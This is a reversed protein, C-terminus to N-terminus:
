NGLSLQASYTSGGVTAKLMYTGNTGTSGLIGTSLLTLESGDQSWDTGKVLTGYVTTGGADGLTLTTITGGFTVKKNASKSKTIPNEGFGPDPDPVIQANDGSDDSGGGGSSNRNTVLQHVTNSVTYTKEATTEKLLYLNYVGRVGFEGAQWQSEAYTNLAGHFQFMGIAEDSVTMIGSDSTAKQLLLSFAAKSTAPDFGMIAASSTTYQATPTENVSATTTITDGAISNTTVFAQDISAAVNVAFFLAKTTVDVDDVKAAAENALLKIGSTSATLTVDVLVPAETKNIFTYGDATYVQGDGSMDYPDLAFDLATPVVVRLVPNQSTSTGEMTGSGKAAFSFAVSSMVLTLVTIFAILKRSKRM